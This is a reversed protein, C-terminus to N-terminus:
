VLVGKLSLEIIVRTGKPFNDRILIIGNHDEVIKSVIVLGLGTGSRKTSYYPEFLKGKEDDPIGPGTDIVEITVIRRVPDHRTKMTIEGKGDMSTISNDILNVLVRKIQDGDIDMIPITKDIDAEFSIDKHANKYLAISKMVIDNLNNPTLNVKPMRAFRSFEDVLTKLEEVQKIITGTCEDFVKGDAGLRELYKKRLRQASLQIPTLPNKVEHAIRQAVERWAMMRQVKLLHTLDDLVAVMGIYNDNEDKLITLNILVTIDKENFKVNIQRELTETETDRMERIMEEFSEKETYNFVDIYNQGIVSNNEIGLIEEAVRNIATIRGSEDFSIVGAPVNSLVTEIYRRRQELEINKNRLSRNAEEIGTKGEKLDATMKNFASVLLGMEDKAKIEIKSDLDGRAVSHTAEILGEIPNTIGKAMYFGVWTASFILLLTVMLFIILYTITIPIKFIYLQKYEDFSKNIAEMRTLLTQPVHTAAVLVGVIDKKIGSSYIPSAGLILEGDNISVINISEKGKLPNELIERPINKPIEPDGSSALEKGLATYVKVMKLGYEARKQELLGLLAEEKNKDLLSENTIFRSIEKSFHLTREKSDKYYFEAVELSGKLTEEVQLNLWKEIVNTLFGSALTFLLITPVLSIALFSIVLKTRFKAGPLKLRRELYLKVLNRGVLLALVMLLILNVNIIFLFAVSNGIPAKGLGLYRIELSIAIGLILLFSIILLNRNKKKKKDPYDEM